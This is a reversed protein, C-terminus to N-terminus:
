KHSPIEKGTNWKKMNSLETELKRLWSDGKSHLTMIQAHKCHDIPKHQNYVEMNSVVSISGDGAVFVSAGYCRGCMAQCGDCPPFSQANTIEGSEQGIQITGETITTGVRSPNPNPTYEVMIGM